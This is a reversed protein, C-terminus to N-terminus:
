LGGGELLQLPDFDEPMEELLSETERAVVSDYTDKNWIQFSDIASSFYVQDAVGIKDRLVQTLSLRGTEDISVTQSAAILAREAWKREKSGMPMAKVKTVIGQAAEITYCKLHNQNPLGYNVLM